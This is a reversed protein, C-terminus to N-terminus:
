GRRSRSWSVRMGMLALTAPGYRDSLLSRWLSTSARFATSFRPQSQANLKYDREYLHIATALGGAERRPDTFVNFRAGVRVLGSFTCGKISSRTNQEAIDRPGNFFALVM